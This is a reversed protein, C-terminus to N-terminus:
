DEVLNLSLRDYQNQSDNADIEYLAMYLKSDNFLNQYM